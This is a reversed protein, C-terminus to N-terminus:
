PLLYWSWPNEKEVTNQGEREGVLREQTADDGEGESDGYDISEAEKEGVPVKRVPFVGFIVTETPPQGETNRAGRGRRQGGYTPSAVAFRGGRPMAREYTNNRVMKDIQSRRSSRMAAATKFGNNVRSYRDWQNTQWGGENGTRYDYKTGDISNLVTNRGRSPGYLAPNAYKVKKPNIKLKHRYRKAVKQHLFAYDLNQFLAVIDRRLDFNRVYVKRLAWFPFNDPFVSNETIRDLTYPEFNHISSVRGGTLPASVAHLLRKLNGVNFWYANEMNAEVVAKLNTKLLKVALTAISIPYDEHVYNSPCLDCCERVLSASANRDEALKELICELVDARVREVTPALALPTPTSVQPRRKNDSRTKQPHRQIKRREKRMKGKVKRSWRIPCKSFLIGSAGRRKSPVQPSVINNDDAINYSFPLHAPRVIFAFTTVGGVPIDKCDFKSFRRYVIRLALNDNRHIWLLDAFRLSWFPFTTYHVVCEEDVNTRQKRPCRKKGRGGTKKKRRNVKSTVRSYLGLAFTRTENTHTDLVQVPMTGHHVLETHGGSALSRDYIGPIESVHQGATRQKWSLSAYADRVSEENVVIYQAQDAMKGKSWSKVICAKTGSRLVLEEKSIVRRKAAACSFVRIYFKERKVITLITYGHNSEM